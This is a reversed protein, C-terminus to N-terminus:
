AWGGAIYARITAASGELLVFLNLNIATNQIRVARQRGSSRFNANAPGGLQRILSAFQADTMEDPQEVVLNRM